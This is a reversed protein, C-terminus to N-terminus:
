SLITREGGLKIELFGMQCDAIEGDCVLAASGNIKWHREHRKTLGRRVMQCYFFDEKILKRSKISVTNM